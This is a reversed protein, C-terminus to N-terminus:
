CKTACSCDGQNFKHVCYADIIIIERKEVKSIIKTANHCDECVRLNKLIRITAGQPTSVLGFALALRECHGCSTDEKDEFNLYSRGRQVTFGEERLQPYLEKLKAHILDSCPHTKDGVTFQHVQKNIEVYAKGPKKWSNAHRKLTQIRHADEWMNANSYLNLMHVYAPAFERDQRLVHEFCRSGIAVNCNMECSCLLSTWGTLNSQFPISELLDEAESFLGAHGLIDVMINFHELLPLIGHNEIMSKFHTSGERVLGAHGCASLVCLFTVEDPKLGGRQMDEICYAVQKYDCIQTYGAILANWTIVDKKQLRDFMIKADDLSGCKSYMDVLTNGVFIDSELGTGYIYCHVQLGQELAAVTACGKLISVMTVQDPEVGEEQMQWFLAIAAQALGQQAYVCLMSNWTGVDRRQLRNFVMRSDHLNCHKGYLDILGSSVFLNADFGAEIVLAHIQNDKGFDEAGACAKIVSLFTVWSSDLGDVEMCYFIQLAEEGLGQLACGSILGSWTVIDRKPMRNFVLLAWHLSGCRGYMDILANGVAVDSEFGCAVAYSHIEEGQHLAASCSCAKLSCIFTVKDPQIGDINMQELLSVVDQGLGAQGYGTIMTNWTAVDRNPLRKLMSHALDFQNCECYMNILTNAVVIEFECGTEIIYSNMQLGYALKSIIACAKVVCSLTSPSPAIGAAQMQEFLEIAEDAFGYQTNGSILASWTVVDKEPLWTHDKFM